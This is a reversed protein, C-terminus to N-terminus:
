PVPSSSCCRSTTTLSSARPGKASHEKTVPWWPPDTSRVSATLGSPSMSAADPMVSRSRISASACASAARPTWGATSPVPWTSTLHRGAIHRADDREDGLAVLVNLAALSEVDPMPVMHRRRFRGVEGEVGGKEHAGEVGPHCFFSDFGYHSRLAIFRESEIRDRGKLVRIVAPKLNDYRIRKPIGEFHEFARVHGDLFVEQAQNFYIRHFSKGSASLRMVFMWAEVMVGCLYFSVQGFDVEAEEALLHTQPVCVDPLSLARKKKVEGVYRRVSSESVEADHEDCLREFIRRATHRQKRPVVEDAKLWGDITAKWAGLSPSPREAVKRPPPVATELATRVMRRHVGFSRSLQRISPSEPGANAKRIQEFLEVKSRKAM